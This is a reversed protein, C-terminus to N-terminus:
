DWGVVSEGLMWGVLSSLLSSPCTDVLSFPPVWATSVYKLHLFFNFAVNQLNVLCSWFWVVSKLKIVSQLCTSWLDSYQWCGVLAVEWARNVASLCKHEFVLVSVGSPVVFQWSRFKQWVLVGTQVPLFYFAFFLCHGVREEGVVVPSRAWFTGQPPSFFNFFSDNQVTKTVTRTIGRGKHKQKKKVVKVTVNKGKNWTIPCRLWCALVGHKLPPWWFWSM